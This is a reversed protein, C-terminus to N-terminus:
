TSLGLTRVIIDVSEAIQEEQTITATGDGSQEGYGGFQAHNGGEIVYEVYNSPAYQRGEEIKDWNIVQDNSGVLLIETMSDDLERTPFAAFLIVGSIEEPHYSAYLAAMAGGMSHGGIYWNEYTYESIVEGAGLINFMSLKFPAEVLCVDLGKDALSHLLASYATAEVKAGQYFILANEEGPGDFYWGYDTRTVTVNIDSQLNVLANEDASYDLSVFVAFAIALGLAITLLVVGLYKPLKIKDKM